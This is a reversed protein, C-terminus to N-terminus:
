SETEMRTVLCLVYKTEETKIELCVRTSNDLLTETYKTINTNVGLLNVYYPYVLLQNSGNM